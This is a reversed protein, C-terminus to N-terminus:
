LVRRAGVYTDTYWVEALDTITVYGAGSSAHIFQGGGIYIGVHSAAASTGSRFFVLDGPKLEERSVETGCTSIQQAASHPLSIGFQGLIYMTFGSCDFSAPGSAAYVYPCGQYSKALEVIQARLVDKEEEIKWGPKDAGYAVADGRLYGQTGQYTVSYWGQEASILQVTEGAALTLVVQSATSEEAYLDRDATLTGYSDEYTEAATTLVQALEERDLDLRISDSPVYGCLEGYYIEYWEAGEEQRPATVSAGPALYCVVAGEASKEGYVPTQTVAAGTVLDIAASASNELEERAAALDIRSFTVETSILKEGDFDMGERANVAGQLFVSTTEVQSAVTETQSFVTERLVYGSVACIAAAASVALVARVPHSGQSMGKM